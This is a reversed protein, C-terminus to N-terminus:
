RNNLCEEMKNQEEREKANEEFLYNVYKIQQYIVKPMGTPQMKYVKGPEWQKVNCEMPTLDYKPDDTQHFGVKEYLKVNADEKQYMRKLAKLSVKEKGLKQAVSLFYVLGKFGIAKYRDCEEYIDYHGIYLGEPFEQCDISGIRSVANDQVKYIFMMELDGFLMFPDGTKDLDIHAYLQRRTRKFCKDYYDKLLHLKQNLIKIIDQKM